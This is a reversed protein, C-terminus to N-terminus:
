PKSAADIAQKIEIVAGKAEANNISSGLIGLVQSATGTALQHAQLWSTIATDYKTGSPLTKIFERITEVEQAIADATNSKKQGRLQAWLGLLALVGMSAMSGIGPFFTNLATGSAQVTAVTTPSTTLTYAPVQVVASVINTQEVVVNQANTVTVVNTHLVTADVYNTQVVYVLHEVATPASPNSGFMSCGTITLLVALVFGIKLQTIKRM